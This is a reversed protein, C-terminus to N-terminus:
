RLLLIIGWLFFIASGVLRLAIGAGSFRSLRRWLYPTIGCVALVPGTITGLGFLAGAFIGFYAGRGIYALYVVFGLMPGCPFIGDVLGLLFPPGTKFIKGCGGRYFLFWIGLLILVGGGIMALAGRDIINQMLYGSYSAIGGIIGYVLVKGAGFLLGTKVGEKWNRSGKAVVPMLLISCHLGCISAGLALGSLFFQLFLNVTEPNGHQKFSHALWLLPRM